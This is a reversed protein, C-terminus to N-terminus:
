LPLDELRISSPDPAMPLAVPAAALKTPLEIAEHRIAELEANVRATEPEGAVASGRRGGGVLRAYDPFRLLVYAPRGEEVVIYREGNEMLPKLEEFM